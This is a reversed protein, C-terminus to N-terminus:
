GWFCRRALSHWSSWPATTSSKEPPSLVADREGQTAAKDHQVGQMVDLPTMGSFLGWLAMSKM